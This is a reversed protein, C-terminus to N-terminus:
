LILAVSSNSSEIQVSGTMPGGMIAPSRWAISGDIATPESKDLRVERIRGEGAPDPEHVDHAVTAQGNSTKLQFVGEFAPHLKVDASKNDTKGNLSLISHVPAIPFVLNLSGNSTSTVVAFQGGRCDPAQSRLSVSADLPGNSTKATFETRAPRNVDHYLDVSAKIPANSTDLKLDSFSKFPGTITIPKNSSTITAERASVSKVSIAANATTLSLLDFHVTEVLDGVDHDFLPMDTQFRLGDRTTKPLHVVVKFTPTHPLDEYTFIGVGITGDGRTVACVKTHVLENHNVTIDVKAVDVVKNSYLVDIHGCSRGRSLFFLFKSIPLDFSAKSIPSGEWKACHLVQINPPIPWHKHTHM